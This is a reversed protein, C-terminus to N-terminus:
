AVGRVSEIVYFNLKCKNEATAYLISIELDGFFCKLHLPVSRPQEPRDLNDASLPVRGVHNPKM